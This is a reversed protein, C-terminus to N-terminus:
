GNRLRVNSLNFGKVLVKNTAPDHYCRLCRVNICKEKIIKKKDRNIAGVPCVLSLHHLEEPTVSGLAPHLGFHWHAAPIVSKGGLTNHKMDDLYYLTRYLMRHLGKRLFHKDSSHPLQDPVPGEVDYADTGRLYKVSEPDIGILKSGFHDLAFANLGALCVGLARSEGFVSRNLPNRADLLHLVGKFKRGLATIGDELRHCHLYRRSPKSLFGILNKVAGSIETLTHEKLVALNIILRAEFAATTIEVWGLGNDLQIKKYQADEFNILEVNRDRAFQKVGLIQFTIDTDFEFGSSEGIVPTAGVQRIKKILVDIFKLDTTAKRFPAVLNPKILVRDGSSVRQSLGGMKNLLYEVIQSPDDDSQTKYSYVISNM